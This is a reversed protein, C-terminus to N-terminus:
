IETELYMRLLVTGPFSQFLAHLVHSGPKPLRNERLPLKGTARTTAEEEFAISCGIFISLVVSHKVLRM